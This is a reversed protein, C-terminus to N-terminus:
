GVDSAVMKEYKREEIYVRIWCWLSVMGIIPILLIKSIGSRSSISKATSNLLTWSKLFGSPHIKNLKAKAKNCQSCNKSGPSYWVAIKHIVNGVLITNNGCLQPHKKYYAASAGLRRGCKTCVVNPTSQLDSDIFDCYM